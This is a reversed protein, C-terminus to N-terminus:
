SLAEMLHFYNLKHFICLGTRPNSSMFGELLYKLMKVCFSKMGEYQWIFEYLYISITVKTVQTFDM